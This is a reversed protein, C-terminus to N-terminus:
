RGGESSGVNLLFERWDEELAHPEVRFCELFTSTEEGARVRKLYARVQERGFREDKMLFFALGWAQAYESRTLKTGPAKAVLKDLISKKRRLQRVLSSHRRRHLQGFPEGAEVFQALGEDVWPPLDYFHSALVYHTLEHRLDRLTDEKDAYRAVAVVYGEPTEFCAARNDFHKPCHQLLYAGLDLQSRFALVRLPTRPVPRQLLEAISEVCQDGHALLEECLTPSLDAYLDFHRGSVRRSPASCGALLVAAGALFLLHRHASSQCAM